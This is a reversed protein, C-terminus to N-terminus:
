YHSLKSFAAVRVLVGIGDLCLYRDKLSDKDACEVYVCSASYGIGLRLRGLGSTEYDALLKLADLAVNLAPHAKPVSKRGYFYGVYLAVSPSWCTGPMM